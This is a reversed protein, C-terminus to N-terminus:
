AFEGVLVFESDLAGLKDDFGDSVETAEGLEFGLSEAFTDVLESGVSDEAGELLEIGVVDDLEAADIDDIGLRDTFGDVLEAADTDEAGEVEEAADGLGREVSVDVDVKVAEGVDM